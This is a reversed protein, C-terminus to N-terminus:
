IGSRLAQILGGVDRYSGQLGVKVRVCVRSFDLVDIGVKVFVSCQAITKIRAAVRCTSICIYIIIYRYIYVCICMYKDKRLAHIVYAWM